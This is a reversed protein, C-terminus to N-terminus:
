NSVMPLKRLWEDSDIQSLMFHAFDARTLSTGPGKGAYGVKLRGVQPKDLLRPARAITWDLGSNKIVDVMGQSDALVNKAFTKLTFGFFRGILDPEDEPAKVGAGTSAILRNVGEAKMADVINQMGATLPRVPKNSSPGLASLVVDAGEIAKRIADPENMEGQVITLRDHEVDLKTPTRAYATVDHGAELAQHVLAQGTRGTAGFITLNM